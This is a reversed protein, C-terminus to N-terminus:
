QPRLTAYASSSYASAYEAPEGTPLIGPASVDAAVLRTLAGVMRGYSQAERPCCTGYTLPCLRQTASLRAHRVDRPTVEGIAPHAISLCTWSPTSSAGVGVGIGTVSCETPAHRARLRCPPNAPSAPNRIERM